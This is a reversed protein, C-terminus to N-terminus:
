GQPPDTSVEAPTTATLVEGFAVVAAEHIRVQTGYRIASLEGRSIWRRVLKPDVRLMRAVEQITFLPGIASPIILTDHSSRM